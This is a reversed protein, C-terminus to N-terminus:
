TVSSTHWVREHLWLRLPLRFSRRDRVVYKLEPIARSQIVVLVPSLSFRYRRCVSGGVFREGGAHPISVLFPEMM